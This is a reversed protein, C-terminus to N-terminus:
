MYTKLCLIFILKNYFYIAARLAGYTVFFNWLSITIIIFILKNYMFLVKKFLIIFKLYINSM